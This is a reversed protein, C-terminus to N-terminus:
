AFFCAIDLFNVLSLLRLLLRWHQAMYYYAEVLVKISLVDEDVNEVKDM